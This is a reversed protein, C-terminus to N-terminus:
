GAPGDDTLAYRLELLEDLTAEAAERVCRGPGVTAGPFRERAVVLDRSAAAIRRDVDALLDPPPPM